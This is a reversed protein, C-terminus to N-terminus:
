CAHMKTPIQTIYLEKICPITCIFHLHNNHNFNKSCSLLQLCIVFRKKVKCDACLRGAECYEEISERSHMCLLRVLDNGCGEWYKGMRQLRIIFRENSVVSLLYLQYLTRAANHNIRLNYKYHRRINPVGTKESGWPVM